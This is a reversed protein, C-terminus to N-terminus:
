SYATKTAISDEFLRYIGRAREVLSGGDASLVCIVRGGEEVLELYGNNHLSAIYEKARKHNLRGHFAVEFPTLPGSRLLELIEVYIQFRSRRRSSDTWVAPITTATLTTTSPSSYTGVSGASSGSTVDTPASDQQLVSPTISRAPVTSSFSSFPSLLTFLIFLPNWSGTVASISENTASTAPAFGPSILLFALIAVYVRPEYTM